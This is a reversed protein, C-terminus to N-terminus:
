GAGSTALYRLLVIGSEFSRCDALRLRAAEELEGVLRTGGGLIVPVVAITLEDLAGAAISQTVVDGGGFVFVDKGTAARAATIVERFDGSMFTAGPPADAPDAHTLVYTPPGAKGSGLMAASERYTSAGLVYAGTRSMTEALGYDEDRRMTDNLWATDGSTSSIYGDVSCALSAFVLATRPSGM